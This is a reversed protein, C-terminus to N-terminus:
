VRTPQYTFNDTCHAFFHFFTSKALLWTIRSSLSSIESKTINFYQLNIFTFLYQRVMHENRSFINMLTSKQYPNWVRRDNRFHLVTSRLLYLISLVGGSSGLVAMVNNINFHLLSTTVAAKWSQFLSFNQMSCLTLTSTLSNVLIKGLILNIDDFM